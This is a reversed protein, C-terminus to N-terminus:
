TELNISLWCNRSQWVRHFLLIRQFSISKSTIVVSTLCSIYLVLFLIILLNTTILPMRVIQRGHQPIEEFHRQLQWWLLPCIHVFTQHSCLLTEARPVPENLSGADSCHRSEICEHSREAPVFVWRQLLVGRLWRTRHDLGLKM